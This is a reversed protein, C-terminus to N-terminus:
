SRMVQFEAYNRMDMPASALFIRVSRPLTLVAVARERAPLPVRPRRRRPLPGAPGIAAGAGADRGRSAAGEARRLSGRRRRAPTSGRRPRRQEPASEAQEPALPRSENRLKYMWYRLNSLSIQKQEAYARQSLGSTEFDAVQNIWFQRKDDAM